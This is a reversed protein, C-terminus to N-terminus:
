QAAAEMAKLLAAGDPTARVAEVAQDITLGKNLHPDVAANFAVKRGAPTSLDGSRQTLKLAENPLVAAKANLEALGADFNTALKTEFSPQEAATIKGATIAAAVHANIALKRFKEADAKALDRESCAAIAKDKETKAMAEANAAATASEGAKAQYAEAAKTIEEDTATEPLGLIKLLLAKIMTDNNNTPPQNTSFTKGEQDVVAGCGPCAVAGMSVEPVAATDFPAGCASCKVATAPDTNTWAPVGAIRPTNTMGISRLEIPEIRGTQAKLRLDYPWAPSPYVLYGESLNKQGLDNWACKVYIGDARAEVGMVGGLRREDPWRQPDADPHGSYIPLGRFNEGQRAALANFAAVMRDGHEQTVVQRYKRWQGNEMEWYDGDVYPSLKTWEASGIAEANINAALGFALGTPTSGLHNIALLYLKRFPNM